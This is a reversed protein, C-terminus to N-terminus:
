ISLRRVKVTYAEKLDSSIKHPPLKAMLKGNSHCLITQRMRKKHSSGGATENEEVSKEPVLM